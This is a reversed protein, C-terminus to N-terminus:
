NFKFKSNFNIVLKTEIKMIEIKMIEIKAAAATSVRRHRRYRRRPSRRRVARPRAARRRRRRRRTPARPHFLGDVAVQRGIAVSPWGYSRGKRWGVGGVRIVDDGGM